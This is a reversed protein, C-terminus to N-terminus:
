NKNDKASKYELFYNCGKCKIKHTREALNDVFNSLSTAMFRASNIFKIKCSITVVSENGNNDIKTVEREIPVSFSKYKETNEGLYEFQGEFKNALENIIFNYDYNSGNHFVVPIEILVNFKLNCISHAAGRYTGTVYCHDRVKRYNKYNVFKKLIRKGCIHYAKADQYSKVEEKTQLLM